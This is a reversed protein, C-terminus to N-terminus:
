ECSIVLEDETFILRVKLVKSFSEEVMFHSPRGDDYRILKLEGKSLSEARHKKTIIYLGEADQVVVNHWPTPIHFYSTESIGSAPIM